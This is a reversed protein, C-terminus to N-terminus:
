FDLGTLHSKACQTELYYWDLQYPSKEDNVQAVQPNKKNFCVLILYSQKQVM